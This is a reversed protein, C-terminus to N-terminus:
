ARPIQGALSPVGFRWSRDQEVIRDGCSKCVVAAGADEEGVATAHRGYALGGEGETVTSGCGSCTEGDIARAIDETM